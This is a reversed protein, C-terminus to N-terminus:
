TKDIGFFGQNEIPNFDIPSLKGANLADAWAKANAIFLELYDAFSEGSYQSIRLSDFLILKSTRSAFGLDGFRPPELGNAKLAENLVNTRLQGSPLTYLPSAVRFTEGQPEREIFIDLQGDISIVCAGRTNLKIPVAILEGLESIIADFPDM